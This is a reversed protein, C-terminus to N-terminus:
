SGAGFGAGFVSVAGDSSGYGPPASTPSIIITASSVKDFNNPAGGTSGKDDTVTVSWLGDAASPNVTFQGSPIGGSVSCIMAYSASILEPPHPQGSAAFTCFSADSRFGSGTVSVLQGGTGIGPILTVKPSITLSATGTDTASCTVTVTYAGGGAPQPATGIIFSGVVTTATNVTATYSAIVNAGNATISCATGVVATAGTATVLIVDGQKGTASAAGNLLVTLGTANVQPTTGPNTVAYISLIITAVIM